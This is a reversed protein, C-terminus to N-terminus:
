HEVNPTTAPSELIENLAMVKDEASSPNIAISGSYSKDESTLWVHLNNGNQDDWTFTLPSGKACRYMKSPAFGEPDTDDSTACRFTGGTGPLTAQFTVGNIAGNSVQLDVNTIELSKLAHTDPSTQRIKVVQTASAVAALLVSVIYLPTM